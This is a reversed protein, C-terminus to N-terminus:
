AYLDIRGDLQVTAARLAEEAIPEDGAETLVMGSSTGSGDADDFAQGSEQQQEGVSTEGLQIGQEALAERLQPIAQEVAGRVQANAALFQIQTSQEVVKLSVTLPGLEPPHLRLEVQQQGGRRTLMILQQGLQQPWAPSNLPATIGPLSAGTSASGAATGSAATGSGMM